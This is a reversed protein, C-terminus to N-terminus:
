MSHVLNRVLNREDALQLNREDAVGIRSGILSAIVSAIRSVQVCHRRLLRWEIMMMLNMEELVHVALQLLM